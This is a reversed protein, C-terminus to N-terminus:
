GVGLLMRRVGGTSPVAFEFTGAHLVGLATNVSVPVTGAAHAPTVVSWLNGFLNTISTGLDGGFSVSNVAGGPGNSFDITVTTGGATTGTAPSLGTLLSPPTSGGVPYEHGLGFAPQVRFTDVAATPTDTLTLLRQGTTYDPEPSALGLLPAFFVLAGPRMRLPSLGAALAAVEADTLTVSWIAAHAVSGTLFKSASSRAVAGIRIADLGTPVKATAETGKSGGDIFARRDTSSNFVACAHHWTDASYSSTSSATSTSTRRTQAQVTDSSAGNAVLAFEDATGGTDGITLLVQENTTDSTKFWCAMTLPVATVPTTANTAYQSSGNFTRAM